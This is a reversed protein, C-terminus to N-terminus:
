FPVRRKELHVVFTGDVNPRYSLWWHNEDCRAEFVRQVEASPPTRLTFTVGNSSVEEASLALIHMDAVGEMAKLEEARGTSIRTKKVAEEMSLM